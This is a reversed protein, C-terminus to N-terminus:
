LAAPRINLSKSANKRTQQSYQHVQSSDTPRQLRDTMRGFGREIKGANGDEQPAALRGTDAWLMWSRRSGRKLKYRTRLDKLFLFPDPFLHAFVISDSKSVYGLNVLQVTKL